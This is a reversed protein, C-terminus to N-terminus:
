KIEHWTKPRKLEDYAVSAKYVAQQGRSGDKKDDNVGDRFQFGNVMQPSQDTAPYVATVLLPRVEGGPIVYNVMLGIRADM